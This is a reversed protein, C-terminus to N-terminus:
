ARTPRMLFSAVREDFREPSGNREGGHPVANTIELQVQGPNQEAFRQSVALPADQDGPSHLILVPCGVHDLSARLKRRSLRHPVGTAKVLGPATLAAMFLSSLVGPMGAKMAAERVIVHWDLAPGILTLSSIRERFKSARALNISIAAGMSWGVLAIDTAGAGVAYAVASEVDDTEYQGFTAATAATDELDGRYSVVLSTRGAALAAPVGRLAARRSSHIGHVHIVWQTASAGEIRWARRTGSPTAINVEYSPADLDAPSDFVYGTWMVREPVLPLASDSGNSILSRTVADDSKALVDGVLRSHRENPGFYIRHLGPAITHPTAELTITSSTIGLVAPRAKPRRHTAKRAGIVGVALAGAGLACIGALAGLGIWGNM